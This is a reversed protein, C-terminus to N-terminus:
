HVPFPPYIFDHSVNLVFPDKGDLIASAHVEYASAMNTAIPFKAIGLPYIASPVRGVMRVTVSAVEMNDMLLVYFPAFAKAATLARLFHMFRAIFRAEDNAKVKKMSSMRTAFGRWTLLVIVQNM